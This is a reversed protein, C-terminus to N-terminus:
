RAMRSWPMLLESSARRRFTSSRTTRRMSSGACSVLASFIWAASATNPLRSVMSTSSAAYSARGRRARRDLQRRWDPMSPRFGSQREQRRVCRGLGTAPYSNATRFSGLASRGSEEWCDPAAVYARDISSVRCAILPESWRSWWANRCKNYRRNCRSIQAACSSLHRSGM